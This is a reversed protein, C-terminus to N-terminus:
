GWGGYTRQWIPVEPLAGASHGSGYGVSRHLRPDTEPADPAISVTANRLLLPGTGGRDLLRRQHRMWLAGVVSCGFLWGFLSALGLFMGSLVLGGALLAGATLAIRIGRQEV